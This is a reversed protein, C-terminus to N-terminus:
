SCHTFGFLQQHRSSAAHRIEDFSQPFAKAIVVKEKKIKKAVPLALRVYFGISVLGLWNYTGFFGGFECREIIGSHLEIKQPKRDKPNFTLHLVQHKRLNTHFTLSTFFGNYIEGSLGTVFEYEHNLRVLRTSFDGTLTGYTKSMVLAGNNVHGFRISRVGFKDHQVIIHSIESHDKDDWVTKFSSYSSGIPGLKIFEM